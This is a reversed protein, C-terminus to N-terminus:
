DISGYMHRIFSPMLMSYMHAEAFGLTIYKVSKHPLPLPDVPARCTGSLIAVAVNM